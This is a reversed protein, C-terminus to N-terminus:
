RRSFPKFDEYLLSCETRHEEGSAATIILTAPVERPADETIILSFVRERILFQLWGERPASGEFIPQDTQLRNLVQGTSVEENNEELMRHERLEGAEPYAVFSVGYVTTVIKITQIDVPTKRPNTLSVFMNILMGRVTIAEWNWYERFIAVRVETKLKPYHERLLKTPISEQALSLHKPDIQSTERYGMVEVKLHKFRFEDADGMANLILVAEEPSLSQQFRLDVKDNYKWYGDVSRFRVDQSFEHENLSVAGKISEDIKLRFVSVNFFTVLFDLHPTSQLLAHGALSCKEIKVYESIRQRNAQAIDHLWRDPCPEKVTNVSPLAPPEKALKRRQIYTAITVFAITSILFVVTAAIFISPWSWGQMLALGSMVQSMLFPVGNRLGDYISNGIVAQTLSGPQKTISSKETPVLSTESDPPTNQSNSEDMIARLNGCVKRTSIEKARFTSYSKCKDPLAASRPKAGLTVKHDSM